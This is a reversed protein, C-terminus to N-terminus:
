SERAHIYPRQRLSQGSAARSTGLIEATVALAIEEASDANIDIGIPAYVRPDELATENLERTRHRPGLVGIYKVRTALLMDLAAQDHRKDHGMVVAYAQSNSVICDKMQTLSTHVRPVNAFRTAVDFRGSANWMEVNWGLRDAAAVLPQADFGTGFVLLDIPPCVPEIMCHMGEHQVVRCELQSAPHRRLMSRCASLISEPCDSPETTDLANESFMWRHGIRSPWAKDVAFVTVIVGHQRAAILRSAFGLPEYGTDDRELLIEVIGGCGLVAEPDTPDSSDMTVVAPGQDTQWFATRLLRQELCGGSVSGFARHTQTML